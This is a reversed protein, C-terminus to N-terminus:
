TGETARRENPVKCLHNWFYRERLTAQLAEKYPFGKRVENKRGNIYNEKLIGHV